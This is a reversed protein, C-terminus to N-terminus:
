EEDRWGGPPLLHCRAIPRRGCLYLAASEASSKEIGTGTTRYGTSSRYAISSSAVKKAAALASACFTGGAATGGGDIAALDYRKSSTNLPWSSTVWFASSNRSGADNVLSIVAYKVNRARLSFSRVGECITVTDSFALRASPERINISGFFVTLTSSSKCPSITCDPLSAAIASASVTAPDSSPNTSRM